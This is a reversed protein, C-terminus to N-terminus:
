PEGGRTTMAIDEIRLCIDFGPALREDHSVMVLTSGARACQAFLLDLFRAGVDADLSSTPEDAIILPPQGILARAVAVRQQQGVSLQDATTASMLAAPLTLADALSLATQKANGARKRRAPAFQLPLLINDLPTAYPLLNFQQFVIGINEARFRDRAGPTMPGLDTGNVSLHGQDAANIGCILSLFTSKGSGSNGLLLIRDGRKVAFSPVKLSFVPQTPWQFEVNELELAPPSEPYSSTM